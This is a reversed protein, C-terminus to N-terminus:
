TRTALLKSDRCMCYRRRGSSSSGLQQSDNYLDGVVVTYRSFKAPSKIQRNESFDALNFDGGIRRSTPRGLFAKHRDGHLCYDGADTFIARSCGLTEQPRPWRCYQRADSCRHVPGKYQQKRKCM